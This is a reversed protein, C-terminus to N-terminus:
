SIGGRSPPDGSIKKAEEGGGEGLREGPANEEDTPQFAGGWGRQLDRAATPLAEDVAPVRPRLHSM